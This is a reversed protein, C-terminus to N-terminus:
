WLSRSNASIGQDEESAGTQMFCVEIPHLIQFVTVPSLRHVVVTSDPIYPAMTNKTIGKM